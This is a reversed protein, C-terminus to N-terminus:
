GSPADTVILILKSGFQTVPTECMGGGGGDRHKKYWGPTKQMAREANRPM